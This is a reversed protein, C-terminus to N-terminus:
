LPICFIPSTFAETTMIPRPRTKSRQWFSLCLCVPMSSKSFRAANMAAFRIRCAKRRRRMWEPRRQPKFKMSMRKAFRKWSLWNSMSLTQIRKLHPCTSLRHNAAGNLWSRLCNRMDINESTILIREIVSPASSAIPETSRHGSKRFKSQFNSVIIMKSFSSFNCRKNKAIGNYTLRNFKM